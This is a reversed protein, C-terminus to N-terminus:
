LLRKIDEMLKEPADKITISNNVLSVHTKVYDHSMRVNLKSSEYKVGRLRALAPRDVHFYANMQYGESDIFDSFAEPNDEDLLLSLTEISAEKEENLCRSLYDDAIERNSTVQEPTLNNEDAFDDLINIIQRTAEKPRTISTCGVFSIFYDSVDRRGRVFSVYKMGTEDDEGASLWKDINIRAAMHLKSLELHISKKLTLQETVYAGEEDNMMVVFLYDASNERYHIFMVYSGVSAQKENMRAQLVALSSKSFEIFNSWGNDICQKLLSKFVYVNEDEEFVGYVVGKKYLSRIQTSVNTLTADIELEDDAEELRSTTTNARKVVKHLIANQVEM